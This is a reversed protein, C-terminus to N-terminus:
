DPSSVDTEDPYDGKDARSEDSLDASALQANNVLLYRKRNIKARGLVRALEMESYPEVRGDLCWTWSFGDPLTTESGESHAQALKEGTTTDILWPSSDAM